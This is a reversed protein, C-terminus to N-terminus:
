KEIILEKKIEEFYQSISNKFIFAKKIKEDDIFNMNIMFLKQNILAVKNSNLNMMVQELNKFQIKLNNILNIKNILFNKCSIKGELIEKDSNILEIISSKVFVFKHKIIQEKEKIEKLKIDIKEIIKKINKQKNPFNIKKVTIAFNQYYNLRNKFANSFSSLKNYYHDYIKKTDSVIPSDFSTLSSELIEDNIKILEKKIMDDESFNLELINDINPNM